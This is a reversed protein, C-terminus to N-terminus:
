YKNVIDGGGRDLARQQIETRSKRKGLSKIKDTGGILRDGNNNGGKIGM